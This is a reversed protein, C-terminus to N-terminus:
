GNYAESFFAKNKFLKWKVERPRRKHMNEHIECKKRNVQFEFPKCSEGSECSFANHNMKLSYNLDSM